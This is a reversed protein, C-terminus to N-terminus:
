KVIGSFSEKLLKVLKRNSHVPETNVIGANGAADFYMSLVRENKDDYLFCGLRLDASQNTHEFTSAELAVRFKKRFPSSQFDNISVKYLWQRELMEPTLRTRTLVEDPLYIIEIRRIKGSELLQTINVMEGKLAPQHGSDAYSLSSLLLLFFWCFISTKMSTISM